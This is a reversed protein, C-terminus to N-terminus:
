THSNDAPIEVRFCTNFGEPPPNFLSITGDNANVIDSVIKLGLGTSILEEQDNTRNIHPTSTTFFAEFIRDENAKPVGDGNDSFDLTVVNGNRRIRIEIRGKGVRRARRIAKLSNTFLNVLISAWESSHMPKTMCHRSLLVPEGLVVGNKQALAQFSRYFEYSVVSLDQPKLQRRVNASITKDFYAVYTELRTFNTNVLGVSELTEGSLDPREALLVLESTIASILTKVEHSFEGITLGLSSLIRLMTVEQVLEENASAVELIAEAQDRIINLTELGVVAGSQAASAARDAESILTGAAKRLAEASSETKRRSVFNRQGATGKRGRANAVRLNVARLTAAAFSKLENFGVSELLGERSSTEEFQAGSHDLIRVFGFWNKNGLPGLVRRKAEDEDLRLWDNEPEGYPLVRFGNRYLRIGGRRSGLDELARLQSGPVFDTTYIFYRAELYVNRLHEYEASPDDESPSILNEEQDIGLKKSTFTWSGKGRNDVSATVEGVAQDFILSAESAVETHHIGDSQLFKVQFGPDHSHGSSHPTAAVPLIPFPQLLEEIFRYARRITETSWAERLKDIILLTGRERPQVREVRNAISGLDSQRLFRGWDIDVKLARKDQATQTLLSLQAGLRQVAFRGIGKKGARTRGYLPSEPELTKEASALRMFGDILQDRTMGNGNDEILLRGGPKDTRAFTLTVVTADADYANKVIESVATEQRAVLEEGLRGIIAADVSFRVNDPDHKALSAALSLVKGYDTKQGRLSAILASRISEEDERTSMDFIHPARNITQSCLM